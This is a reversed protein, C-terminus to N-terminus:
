TFTNTHTNDTHRHTRTHQFRNEMQMARRACLLLILSFFIMLVIFAVLCSHTYTFWGNMRSRFNHQWCTLPDLCTVHACMSLINTITQLKRRCIQEAAETQVYAWEWECLCLCVRLRSFSYSETKVNKRANDNKNMFDFHTFHLFVVVDVIKDAFSNHPYSNVSSHVRSSSNWVLVWTSAPQIADLQEWVCLFENWMAREMSEKKHVLGPLM